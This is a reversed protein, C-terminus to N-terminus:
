ERHLAKRLTEATIALYIGREDRLWRAAAQNPKLDRIDVHLGARNWFPYIGIGAFLRSKEALLFQDIVHMDKIVLDIAKGQGHQGTDGERYDSNIIIPRGALERLKDISYILLPDLKSPRKFEHPKFYKVNEWKIM